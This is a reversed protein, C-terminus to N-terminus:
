NLKEAKRGPITKLLTEEWGEKNHLRLLIEFCQNVTLIPSGKLKVYKRLPFKLSKIKEKYSKELTINKFNNHDVLGGIIYIKSEDFEEMEEEADGSLYIVKERDISDLFNDKTYKLLWKKGDREEILEKIKDNIGTITLNLPNESKRQLAHCHCFQNVLSKLTKDELTDHFSADIIIKPAKEIQKRLIERHVKKGIPNTVQEKVEGRERKEKKRQKKEQMKKKRWAGRTSERYKQRALKKIKKKSLGKYIPDDWNIEYKKERHKSKDINDDKNEIKEKKNEM